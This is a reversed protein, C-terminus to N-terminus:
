ALLFSLDKQSDVLSGMGIIGTASCAMASNIELYYLTLIVNLHIIFNIIIISIILTHALHTTHSTWVFTRATCLWSMFTGSHGGWHSLRQIPYLKTM